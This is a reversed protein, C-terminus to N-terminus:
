PQQHEQMSHVQKLTSLALLFTTLLFHHLTIPLLEELTQLQLSAEVTLPMLGETPEVTFNNLKFWAESTIAADEALAKAKAIEAYEEVTILTFAGAIALIAWFITIRLKKSM